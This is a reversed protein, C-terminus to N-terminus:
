TFCEGTNYHPIKDTLEEEADWFKYNGEIQVKVEEYRSKQYL